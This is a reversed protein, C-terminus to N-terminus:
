AAAKGACYADWAGVEVSINSGCTRCAATVCHDEAPGRRMERRNETEAEFRALDARLDDHFASPCYDYSPGAIKVRHGDRYLEHAHEGAGGPGRYDGVYCWHGDREVAVHYRLDSVYVGGKHGM